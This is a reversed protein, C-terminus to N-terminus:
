PDISVKPPFFGYRGRDLRKTFVVDVSDGHLPDTPDLNEMIIVQGDLRSQVDEYFAAIIGAPLAADVEGDELNDPPRYTVLPSDLVVFGPHAIERDFCYQALGLTFAAHLIARVGKGHASRLQDGAQIDQALRDYRVSQADPFGWDGLRDSLERSFEQLANPSMGDSIAAGDRQVDDEIQVKMRQLGALQEYFTLSKEIDSRVEALERLDSQKPALDNEIERLTQRLDGIRGDTSESDVRAQVARQNVDDITLLLDALLNETKQIEADVSAAFATSDGECELNYHQHESEAGCFPCLGTAFYGLINGAEKITALRALDSEYQTRLLKFRAQLAVVEAMETRADHLRQQAQRLRENVEARRSWVESMAANQENMANNLRALQDRLQGVEATGSLKAEVEAILRDIVEVKAGSVRSKEQASPVAIVASDDEAELLLKLVSIEKTKGTWNGTLAPPTDSQMQTEDVVCLRVLNRFSLSDTMGQANRRVRMGDLDVQKLLFRSVNSESRHDHKWNLTGDAVPLPGDRLDANYLSFGGGAVSRALTVHEGDPLELGLLVTSYGEREPIEKLSKAGMMFNLADVIFSKGTDSPGRVLTLQPGFEVSASEVNTGIFTLHTITLRLM